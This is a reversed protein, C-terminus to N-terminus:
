QAANELLTGVLYEGCAISDLIDRLVGLQGATAFTFINRQLYRIDDASTYCEPDILAHTIFTKPCGPIGGFATVCLLITVNYKRATWLYHRFNIGAVCSGDFVCENFIMVVHELSQQKGEAKRQDRILMALVEESVMEDAAQLPIDEDACWDRVSQATTRSCLVVRDPSPLRKLVATAASCAHLAHILIVPNVCATVDFDRLELM